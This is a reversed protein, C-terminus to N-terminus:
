PRDEDGHVPAGGAHGEVVLQGWQGNETRFIKEVREVEPQLDTGSPAADWDIGAAALNLAADNYLKRLQPFGILAEFAAVAGALAALIAAAVGLGARGTGTAFQSAVGVAAALGLLTNRVGIAQRHAEEYEGARRNYFGEQDAMRLDRYLGRFQDTRGSEGTVGDGGAARDVGDVGTV